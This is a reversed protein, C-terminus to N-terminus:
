ARPIPEECSPRLTFSTNVLRQHMITRPCVEEQRISCRQRANVAIQKLTDENEAYLLQTRSASVSYSMYTHKMGSSATRSILSSHVSYPQQHKPRLTFSTNRLRPHMLTPAHQQEQRPSSHAWANLATQKLSETNQDNMVKYM